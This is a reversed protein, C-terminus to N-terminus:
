ISKIAVRKRKIFRFPNVCAHTPMVYRNYRTLCTVFPHVCKYILRTIVFLKKDWKTWPNAQCSGSIIIKKILRVLNLTVHDMAM